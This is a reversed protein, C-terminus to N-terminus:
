DDELHPRLLEILKLKARAYLMATAQPTRGLVEATYALSAELIMRLLIVQRYDEPLERIAAEVIRVLEEKALREPPSTASGALAAGLWFTSTEVKPLGLPRERRVDRKMSHIRKLEDRIQNEALKSLWHMLAGPERMEFDDLRQMAVLFTRQVFDDPEIVGRLEDSMRIRVWSLVRDYYRGFLRDRAELDGAQFRRIDEFTQGLGNLGARGADVGLEGEQPESEDDPEDQDGPGGEDVPDDSRALTQM